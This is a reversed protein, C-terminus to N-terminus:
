SKIVEFEIGYKLVALMFIQKNIVKYIWQGITNGYSDKFKKHHYPYLGIENWRAPYVFDQIDPFNIFRIDM